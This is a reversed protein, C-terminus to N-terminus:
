KNEAKQIDNGLIYKPNAVEDFKKGDSIGAEKAFRIAQQKNLFDPVSKKWDDKKRFDASIVPIIKVQSMLSDISSKIAGTFSEVPNPSNTCFLTPIKNQSRTRFIHELMKGFLDATTETQMFRSDFEDIVLFDVIMLERRSLFKEETPSDILASVIDALSTYLCVYNKLCARKLINTATLTKGVGHSGAFCISIGDRYAASFDASIQEYSKKLADPGQFDKMDLNWYNIPINSDAYRNYAIVKVACKECLGDIAQEIVKVNKASCIKCSNVLNLIYEQLKREPISSLAKSRTITSRYDLDDEKRLYHSM